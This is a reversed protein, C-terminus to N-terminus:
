IHILSLFMVPPEKCVTRALPKRGVESSFAAVYWQQFPFSPITM